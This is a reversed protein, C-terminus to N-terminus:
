FLSPNRTPESTPTKTNYFGGNKAEKRLRSTTSEIESFCPSLQNM